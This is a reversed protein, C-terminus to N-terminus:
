DLFSSGGTDIILRYWYGGIFLTSRPALPHHEMSVGATLPWTERGDFVVRLSSIVSRGLRRRKGMASFRRITAAASAHAGSVSPARSRRSPM